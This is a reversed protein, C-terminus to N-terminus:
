KYKNSFQTTIFMYTKEIELTMNESTDIALNMFLSSSKQKEQKSFKETLSISTKM